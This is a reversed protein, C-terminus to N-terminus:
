RFARTLTVRTAWIQSTQHSVASGWSLMIQQHGHERRLLSIGITDGPWVARNGFQRSIRVPPSLWGTRVSFPRLYQAFGRPSNDSLWGLYATGPRGGAVAMIHEATDHDTTVRRAPSWTRGHDTSYSLWGIDGGPRQTDWTAYLTGAADIGLAADIWTVVRTTRGAGPRVPVPRSWTQGRDASSTFYVHGVPLVPQPVGFGAATWFLVDVRGDPEVLVPAAAGGGHDPFGPSVPIIRSWTKGGDTSRQIVTNPYRTALSPGYDWTLYITGDPAVAIFDRDGWNHRVPPLVRSVRAFSAGHDFSVAVVPYAYGHRAIMYSIVVAGDPTVAIAPDWGFKPLGSPYRGSGASGPVRMPRGFNRGGNVSRAFGIGGCGIWVEYVYSADVAQEVEANQGSCGRSVEVVPGVASRPSPGAPVAPGSARSGGAAAPAAAALVACAVSVSGLAGILRWRGCRHAALVRARDGVM